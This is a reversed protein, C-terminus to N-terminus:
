SGQFNFTGKYFRPNFKYITLRLRKSIFIAM